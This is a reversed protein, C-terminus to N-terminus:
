KATSVFDELGENNAGAATGGGMAEIQELTRAEGTSQLGIVM